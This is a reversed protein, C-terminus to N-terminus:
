RQVNYKKVIKKNIKKICINYGVGYFFQFYYTKKIKFIKLFINNRTNTIEAFKVKKTLFKLEYNKKKHHIFNQYNPM